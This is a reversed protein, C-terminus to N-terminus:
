GISVRVTTGAPSSRVQVLDCVQNLIWMGRGGPDDFGPRRRGVLPDEIRGDDVTQCTVRLPEHWVAFTGQGGAHRVSNTAMESTALVLDAAAAPALRAQRAHETVLARVGRLDDRGFQLTSAHAPVPGLPRELLELVGRGDVHVHSCGRGDLVTPHTRRADDLVEAPLGDVDYPCLLRWSPDDGFAVNILAEHRHCEVLEQPSRGAWVPEGVGLLPRGEGLATDAIERWAPIIRGPNRGLGGMDMLQLREQDGVQAALRELRDVPAAVAAAGGDALTASM